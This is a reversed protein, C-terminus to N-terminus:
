QASGMEHPLPSYRFPAVKLFAPTHVGQPPKEYMPWARWREGTHVGCGPQLAPWYRAPAVASFAPLHASRGEHLASSYRAPAARSTAPSHVAHLLMLHLQCLYRVPLQEPLLLPNAHLARGAQLVVLSDGQPSGRPCGSDHTGGGCSRAEWFCIRIAATGATNM